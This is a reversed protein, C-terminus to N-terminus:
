RGFQGSDNTGLAQAADDLREETGIDAEKVHLEDHLRRLNASEHRPMLVERVPCTLRVRWDLQVAHHVQVVGRPFVPCEFHQRATLACTELPVGFRRLPREDVLEVGRMKGALCHRKGALRSGADQEAREELM